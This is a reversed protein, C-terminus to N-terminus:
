LNEIPLTPVDDREIGLVQAFFSLEAEAATVITEAKRFGHGEGEFLLYAFPVGKTRLAEVMIEAQSPPVVKDDAGQLLLMPTDLQDVHNIPSRERYVAEAEPWPGIMTHEYRSEFKHTDGTAFPVLDAIGYYSAGAAFVHPEFTLACLTTYGGASGGRILLRQGDVEGRDALSKAANVCDRLDVVGWNGNLRQRYARGYGTSGGYNVDVVAFGRSTWFQIELDLISTTNSTPGGHSKVILPPREEAPAEVDPNVPPYYFAHATLGDDTPVDIAMPESLYAEDVPVETAQRLVDISRASFDLWVIQKPLTASGAGFVIAQGETVLNPGWELADHPLDLDLLEGTEPDLVGLRTRGGLDYQCAIRGDDLFGYSREGFVWQPYGFEAEVPHLSRRDGDRIRELNWWGSRDSAFVVDGAPSWEPQWISEEGDVGAVHEVGTLTGDPALSATFLECGDWPMWPLDWTLFLLRTGDPSIRPGAYFDRGSAIARPEATGDTPLAVLENAVDEVRAGLDHRERVGIWWAGEATVVGDAFRHTGGTDATIPTPDSGADQRYLRQDEFNSFHVTGRHVCYAGGGYEHVTSRVNFGATTVDHASADPTGRMIVGRGGEVPRREIWYAVGDHLRPDGLSAGDIALMQPAIPSPWTGYPYPPRRPETM